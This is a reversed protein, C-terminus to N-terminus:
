GQYVRAACQQYMIARSNVAVSAAVDIGSAPTALFEPLSKPTDMDTFIPPSSKTSLTEETEGEVHVLLRSM